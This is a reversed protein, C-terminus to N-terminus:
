GHIQQIRRSAEQLFISGSGIILAHSSLKSTDNSPRFSLQDVWIRSDFGIREQYLICGSQLVHSAYSPRAISPCCKIHELIFFLSSQYNSAM